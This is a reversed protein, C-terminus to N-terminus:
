KVEYTGSGLISYCPGEDPICDITAIHGQDFLFIRALCDHLDKLKSCVERRRVEFDVDESRLYVEVLSRYIHISEANEVILIMIRGNREGIVTVANHQSHHFENVRGEFRRNEKLKGECELFFKLCFSVSTERSCIDIKGIIM